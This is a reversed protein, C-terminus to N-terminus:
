INGLQKKRMAHFYQAALEPNADMNAMWQEKWRTLDDLQAQMQNEVHKIHKEKEAVKQELGNYDFYTFVPMCRELWLQAREPEKKAYYPSKKHGLIYESYSHTTADETLTKVLRRFSYLTVMHRRGARGEKKEDEPRLKCMGISRLVSQFETEVGTYMGDPGADQRVAFTYDNPFEKVIKGIEDSGYKFRLWAKVEEASEDSCYITRPLKNKAFQAKMYCSVPRSEFDWNGNQIALGEVPRFGFGGADVKCYPRLRRNNIALLIKRADAVDIAAEDERRIKPMTVKSRFKADTIDVDFKAMYGKIGSMYTLVTAASDEEDTLLYGVYEDLMNYVDLEKKQLPELVTEINYAPFYVVLFRQLALLAMSYTAGTSESNRVKQAIYTKVNQFRTEPPIVIKKNTKPVPITWDEVEAEVAAQM